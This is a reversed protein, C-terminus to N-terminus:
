PQKGDTAISNELVWPFCYHELKVVNKLNSTNYHEIKGRAMPHCSAGRLEELLCGVTCFMQIFDTGGNGSLCLGIVSVAVLM